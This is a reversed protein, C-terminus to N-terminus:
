DKDLRLGKKGIRRAEWARVAFAFHAFRKAVDNGEFVVFCSDGLFDLLHVGIRIM